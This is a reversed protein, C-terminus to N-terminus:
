LEGLLSLTTELAMDGTCADISYADEYDFFYDDDIFGGGQRSLHHSEFSQPMYGLADNAQGIALATIPAKEEITNTYNAFVEGPAATIVVGGIRAASVSMRASVPSASRCRNIVQRGADVTAPGGFPKDFFGGGGLAGLPLNTVPQEWYHRASRVDPNTVPTGSGIEPILTALAPGAGDWGHRLSMNGLGAPLLTAQGGHLAEAEKAFVAPYDGHGIGLDEDYSTPHAAYTGVFAVQSDDRGIARIYNVTPDEASRYGGRRESNYQRALFEGAELTAPVQNTVAERISEMISTAVQDMYWGPVGGWGGILDLATHSHTSAIIIGSADIGLEDALADEMAETGCEPVLPGCMNNYDSFYGEADLLTLVVTDGEADTIATSRVYLGYEQDWSTIPNTPGIGYGGMYICNSDEIWPSRWDAVHALTDEPNDAAQGQPLCAEADTEWVGSFDDPRPELSIASVGVWVEDDVLAEEIGVATPSAGRAPATPELTEDTVTSVPALGVGAWAMGIMLAGTVLGTLAVRLRNRM